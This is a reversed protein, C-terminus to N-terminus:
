SKPDVIRIELAQFKIGPEDDDGVIPQPAKGDVRDFIEKIAQTDGAMANTVLADVVKRIKKVNGEALENLVSILQQTVIKKKAHNVGAALTNGKQFAM